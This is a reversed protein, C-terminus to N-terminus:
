KVMRGGRVSTLLNARWRVKTPFAEGENEAEFEGRSTQLCETDDGMFRVLPATHIMLREWSENEAVALVGIHVTRAATIIIDCYRLATEGMANQHTTATMSGKANRRTNMIGIHAPALKHFHVRNIASVIEQDM